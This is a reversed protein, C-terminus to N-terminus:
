ATKDISVVPLLSASYRASFDRAHGAIMASLCLALVAFTLLCLLLANVDKHEKRSSM